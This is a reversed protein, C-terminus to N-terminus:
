QFLNSSFIRSERMLVWEDVWVWAQFNILIRQFYRHSNWNCHKLAVRRLMAYTYWEFFNKFARQNNKLQKFPAFADGATSSLSFNRPLVAHYQM